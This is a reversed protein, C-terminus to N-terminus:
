RKWLCRCPDFFLIIFCISIFINIPKLILIILLDQKLEFLSNYYNKFQDQEINNNIEEYLKFFDNEFEKKYYVFFGLYVCFLIFLIITRFIIVIISVLGVCGAFIGEEDAECFCFVFFPAFSVASFIILIIATGFCVNYLNDYSYKINSNKYLTQGETLKYNQFFNKYKNEDNSELDNELYNIVFNDSSSPFNTRIKLEKLKDTESKARFCFFIIPISFSIFNLTRIIMFFSCAM